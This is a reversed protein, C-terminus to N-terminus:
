ETAEVIKAKDRIIEIAKRSMLYSKYEDVNYKEKFEDVSSLGYSACEEAISKEVEEDTIMQNEKELVKTIALDYQVSKKAYERLKEKYMDLDSYGYIYMVYGELQLGYDTASAEDRSYVSDYYFQIREEPLEDNFECMEILQNMIANDITSDYTDQAEKVLNEKVYTKLEDVTSVNEIGQEAVFEDTLEPYVKETIKNLTVKFTVPKGALEEYYNDPFVLDIDRTDGVNMGILADEFGPIFSNSGIELDYGAESDDTGGEFAEGDMTGAYNINAIDGSKLARGEVVENSVRATILSQISSEVDADTVEALTAAVEMGEYDGLKKIYDDVNVDALDKLEGVVATDGSEVTTNNGNNDGTNKGCGAIALIGTLALAVVFLNKKM